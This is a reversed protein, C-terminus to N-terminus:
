FTIILSGLCAKRLNITFEQDNIKGPIECYPEALKSSLHSLELCNIQSQPTGFWLKGNADDYKLSTIMQKDCQYVKQYTAKESNDTQQLNACFISGDRGGTFLLDKDFDAELM